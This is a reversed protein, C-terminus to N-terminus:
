LLPRNFIEMIKQLESKPVNLKKQLKGCIEENKGKELLRNNDTLLAIMQELRGKLNVLFGNIFNKSVKEL